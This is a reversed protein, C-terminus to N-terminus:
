FKNAFIWIFELLEAKRDFRWFCGFEIANAHSSLKLALSFVIEYNFTEGGTAKSHAPNEWGHQVSRLWCSHKCLLEGSSRFKRGSASREDWELRLQLVIQKQWESRSLAMFKWNWLQFMQKCDDNVSGSVSASSVNRCLLLEFIDNCDNKNLVQQFCKRPTALNNTQLLLMFKLKFVYHRAHLYLSTFNWNFFTGTAAALFFGNPAHLKQCREGDFLTELCRKMVFKENLTVSISNLLAFATQFKWNSKEM